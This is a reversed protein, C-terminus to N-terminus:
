ISLDDTKLKQEESVTIIELFNPPITLLITDLVLFSSLHSNQWQDKTITKKKIKQESAKMEKPICLDYMRQLVKIIAETQEGNSNKSTVSVM